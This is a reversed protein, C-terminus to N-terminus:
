RDIAVSDLVSSETAMFQVPKGIFLIMLKGLLRLLYSSM